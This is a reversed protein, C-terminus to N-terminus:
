KTQLQQVTKKCNPNGKIFNNELEKKLERFRKPDAKKVCAHVLFRDRQCMHSAAINTLLKKDSLSSAQCMENDATSAANTGFKGGCNKIVEVVNIFMEYFVTNSENEQQKVFCFALCAHCLSGQSCKTGEFKCAINKIRKLLEAVDNSDEVAERGVTAEIKNKLADGCQGLMSEFTKM